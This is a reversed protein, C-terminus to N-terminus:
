FLLTSYSSTDILSCTIMMDFVQYDLTVLGSLSGRYIHVVGSGQYPESIAVDTFGDLDIDGIAEVALGFRGSSIKPPNIKLADNM